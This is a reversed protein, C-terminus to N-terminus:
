PVQDIPIPQPLQKNIQDIRRQTLPTVGFKLDIAYVPIGNSNLLVIDLRVSGATGYDVPKGNMYSAETAVNSWKNANIQAEVYTHGKTGHVAGKGPNETVYRNAADTAFQKLEGATVSNGSSYGSTNYPSNIWREEEAMAGARVGNPDWVGSTNGKYAPVAFGLHMPSFLSRNSMEDWCYEFFETGNPDGRNIPQQMCYCFLNFNPLLLTDANAFRLWESNYYRSRLYYLGTEEDYVYGRYRFPQVTGLTAAMSGTKSIPRGWADYVYSVVVNKESDLIAVIDGQLNKVYTYPTGNYVVVAPKNQADYFFHLENSGQTMHVINKGHLTYKTVGTSTATKQVRLGNENYVFEVTEGAKQMKQLQRGNQWTYTWTGDNLPNGIQDYTITKDNVKTLQDRWNENTYEFDMSETEVGNVYKKKTLINGGQDYTYEWTAGEQGDVVRILQGLADYTYSTTVGDQVVSAINGNDDYTYAFNGGTQSISEVLGTTSTKDTVDELAAGAMYTYTTTNTTGDGAKVTAKAVRGLGDYELNSEGFDGYELATPRNEDDYGFTTVFEEHDAGVQETFKSLRGFVDDYAVEGTYVHELSTVNGADDESFKHTKIRCPRNSLDYESEAIQGILNNHM